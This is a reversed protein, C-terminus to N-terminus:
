DLAGDSLDEIHQQICRKVGDRYGKWYELEYETGNRIAESVKKEAYDLRDRNTM